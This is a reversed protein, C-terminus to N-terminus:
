VVAEQRAIIEGGCGPEAEAELFDLADGIYSKRQPRWNREARENANSSIPRVPQPM